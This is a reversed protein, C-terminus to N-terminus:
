ASLGLKRAGGSYPESALGEEPVEGGGRSSVSGRGTQEKLHVGPHKMHIYRYKYIYIYTYM